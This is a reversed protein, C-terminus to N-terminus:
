SGRGVRASDGPPLTIGPTGGRPSGEQVAEIRGRITKLEEQLTELRNDYHRVRAPLSALEDMERTLESMKIQLTHLVPPTEDKPRSVRDIREGLRDVRQMLDMIQRKLTEADEASTFGPIASSNSSQSNSEKGSEKSSGSGSGQKSKSQNKSGSENKSKSQDSSSDNSKSGFFYSYGVAGLVGFLLAVGATIMLNKMMSPQKGRPKGSRDERDEEDRDDGEDRGQDNKKKKEGQSAGHKGNGQKSHGKQDQGKGGGSDDRQNGRGGERDKEKGRPGPSGSEEGDEENSSDDDRSRESRHGPRDEIVVARVGPLYLPSTESVQTTEMRTTTDPHTKWDSPHEVASQIEPDLTTITHPGGSEQQRSSKGSREQTEEDAM